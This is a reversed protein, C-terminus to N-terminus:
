AAGRQFTLLLNNSPMELREIRAFGHQAALADVDDLRRVGWRPDRQKLSADFDLNSSATAEGELYPGYLHLAGEETLLQAAGAFLGEAAQWPAIHIMNACYIADIAEMGDWWRALSVDLDLARRIRGQSEEGWADASARSQSDPDSPTWSLDPRHDVLALAHEGTGSAIELVHAGHPLRAGLAMMIPGRNRAASPSSLRAGTQDRDELAIPATKDTM